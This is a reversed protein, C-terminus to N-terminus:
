RGARNSFRAVLVESLVVASVSIGVSIASLVFVMQGNGPSQLTSFIALSLTRTEGPINAVFTITAGFEGLAKAFGLVVGAVIGPLALPLDLILLRKVGSHGAVRLAEHLRPDVNELAIRIPRVILAFAVLGAALAAGTWRFGLELGMASLFQGAAGKPGFVHLLILGTVVPPMVLPLLVLASLLSKGFFRGRALLYAVGFALPLVGAVGVVAVKLSLLAIQTLDNM